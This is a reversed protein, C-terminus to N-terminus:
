SHLFDDGPLQTEKFTIEITVAPVRRPFPTFKETVRTKILLGHGHGHGHIPAHKGQQSFRTQHEVSSFSSAM